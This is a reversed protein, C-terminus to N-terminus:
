WVEESQWVGCLNCCANSRLNQGSNVTLLLCFTVVPLSKSSRPALQPSRAFLGSPLNSLAHLKM